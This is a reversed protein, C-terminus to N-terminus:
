NISDFAVTYTEKLMHLKANYLLKHTLLTENLSVTLYSQITDISSSQFIHTSCQPAQNGHLLLLAYPAWLGM